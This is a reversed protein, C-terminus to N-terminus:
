NFISKERLIERLKGRKDEIKFGFDRVTHILKNDFERDIKKRLLSIQVDVVNSGSDHDYWFEAEIKAHSIVVNQNSLLMELLRFEKSTLVIEKGNRFVVHNNLSMVLDACIYIDEQEMKCITCIENNM